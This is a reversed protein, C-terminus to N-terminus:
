PIVLTISGHVRRTVFRGADQDIEFLGTKPDMVIQEAWGEDQNVRTCHDVLVGDCFAEVTTGHHAIITNADMEGKITVEMM